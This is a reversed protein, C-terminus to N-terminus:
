AVERTTIFHVTSGREGAGDINRTYEDENTATKNPKNKSSTQKRIQLAKCPTRHVDVASKMKQQKTKASLSPRISTFFIASSSFTHQFATHTL